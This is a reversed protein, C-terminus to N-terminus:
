ACRARLRRSAPRSRGACRPAPRPRSHPSRSWPTASAATRTPSASSTMREAFPSPSLRRLPDQAQPHDLLGSLSVLVRDLRTAAEAVAEMSARSALRGVLTRLDAVDDDLQLVLSHFRCPLRRVQPLRRQAVPLFM